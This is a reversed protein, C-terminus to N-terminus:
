GWHGQDGVGYSLSFGMAAQGLESRGSRESQEGWEFRIFLSM